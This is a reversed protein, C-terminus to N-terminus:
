GSIGPRGSGNVGDRNDSASTFPQVQSVTLEFPTDPVEDAVPQRPVRSASRRGSLYLAAVAALV